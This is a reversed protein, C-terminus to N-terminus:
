GDCHFQRQHCLRALTAGTSGGILDHVPVGLTKGIADHLAISIGSLCSTLHGQVGFHYLRNCIEAAVIEFDFISSASSCRRLSISINACRGCHVAQRAM